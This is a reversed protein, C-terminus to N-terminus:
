YNPKSYNEQEGSTNKKLKKEEKGVHKIAQAKWYEWTNILKRKELPESKVQYPLEIGETMHGKRSKMIVMAYKEIGFEMRIDQCSIRVAQILNEM